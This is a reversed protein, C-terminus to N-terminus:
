IEACRYNPQRGIVMEFRLLCTGTSSANQVSISESGIRMSSFFFGIDLIKPRAIQAMIGQVATQACLVNASEDPVSAPLPM